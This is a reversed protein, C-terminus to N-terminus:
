ERTSRRWVLWVASVVLWVGTLGAQVQSSDWLLGSTLLNVMALGGVIPALAGTLLRLLIRVRARSSPRADAPLLSPPLTGRGVLQSGERRVLARRPPWLARGLLALAGVVIGAIKLGLGPDRAVTFMLYRSRTFQLSLEELHITEDGAITAEHVLEGSRIRLIQVHLPSDTEIPPSTDPLIRVFLGAQNIAFYADESSGLRFRLMPLADATPTLLLGLPEGTEDVAVVSVEPGTGQPYLRVDDLQRTMGPHRDPLAIEGHDPISVTEGFSGILGEVRWGWVTGVLLGLLLLLPGVHALLALAQAVPWRGAHLVDQSAHLVRLGASRLRRAAQELDEEALPQWAEGDEDEPAAPKKGLSEATEFARILLLFALVSLLIRLLPSRGLTFLSLGELLRVVAPGFRTQVQALWQSTSPSTPPSQPIVLLLATLLALLLLTIALSRDRTGLKWLTRWM